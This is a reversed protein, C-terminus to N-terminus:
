LSVASACVVKLVSIDVLSLEHVIFADALAFHGEFILASQYTLKYIVLSITM